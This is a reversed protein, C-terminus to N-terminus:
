KFSSNHISKGFTLSTQSLGKVTANFTSADIGDPVEDKEEEDSNSEAVSMMSPKM